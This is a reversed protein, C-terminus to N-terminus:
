HPLICDEWFSGGESSSERAGLRQSLRGRGAWIGGLGKAYAYPHPHVLNFACVVRRGAVRSQNNRWLQSIAEEDVWGIASEEVEGSGEADDSEVEIPVLPEETTSSGACCAPPANEQELFSYSVPFDSSPYALCNSFPPISSHGRSAPVRSSSNSVGSFSDKCLSSTTTFGCCLDSSRPSRCM